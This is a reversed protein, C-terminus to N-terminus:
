NNLMFQRRPNNTGIHLISCKNENLDLLWDKCWREIRQLDSALENFHTVLNNYIKTDDAFSSIQSDLGLAIDATYINFLSPALVSGQPEGRSARYKESYEGGVLVRCGRGSLFVAIWNLLKVRVPMFGHQSMPIIHNNLMFEILQESIIEMNALIKCPISTLSIQKYNKPDFKDGKKYVPIVTSEKWQQPLKSEEMSFEMIKTLPGILSKTNKLFVPHVGDPGPSPNTKLGAIIKDVKAETIEITNLCRENRRGTITPFTSSPDSIFSNKFETAFM